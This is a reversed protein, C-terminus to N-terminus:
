MQHDGCHRPGTTGHGSLVICPFSSMGAENREQGLLSSLEGNLKIYAMPTRYLLDIWKRFVPGFGFLELVKMMYNWQVTDFAKEIYLTVLVRSVTEDPPLQVHTFVRRINIDTSKGPMFGTQDINILSPLVKM